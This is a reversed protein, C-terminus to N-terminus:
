MLLKTKNINNRPKREEPDVVATALSSGHGPDHLGYVVIGIDIGQLPVRVNIVVTSSGAIQRWRL